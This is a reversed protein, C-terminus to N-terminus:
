IWQKFRCSLLYPIELGIGTIDSDMDWGCFIIGGDRDLFPCPLAPTLLLNTAGFTCGKNCGCGLFWGWIFYM